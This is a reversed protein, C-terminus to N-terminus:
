YTARDSLFERLADAVKGPCELMPLHAAGDIEHVQGHPIVGAAERARAVIPPIDWTGVIILTPVTLRSLDEWTARSQTEEGADPAQWARGNMDLFLERAAGGVRGPHAPGDLWLRAELENVEEIKEAAEAEEIQRALDEAPGGPETPSGGAPVSNVLVLGAVLEPHHLAIELAVAGSNSAGVLVAREVRRAAMVALLDEAASHAEPVYTTTGYGRRDYAILRWQSALLRMVELWCRRDTVGAHIFVVAPGTGVESTALAASQHHVSSELM